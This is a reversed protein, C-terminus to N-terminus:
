LGTWLTATFCGNRLPVGKQRTFIIHYSHLTTQDVRRSFCCHWRAFVNISHLSNRISRTM